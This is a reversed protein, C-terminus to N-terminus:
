KSLLPSMKDVCIPTDRAGQQGFYFSLGLLRLLPRGQTLGRPDPHTPLDQSLPQLLSGLLSNEHDPAGPGPSPLSHHGGALGPSRVHGRKPKIHWSRHSPAPNANVLDLPDQSCILERGQRGRGRGRGRDQETLEAGSLSVARSRM